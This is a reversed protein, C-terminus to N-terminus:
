PAIGFVSRGIIAVFRDDRWRVVGLRSMVDVAAGGRYALYRRTGNSFILSGDPAIADIRSSTSFGSVRQVVAAPSRTWVQLAGVQDPLTFATWGGSVAFDTGPIPGPPNSPALITETTGDHLVIAYNSPGNGCCVVPRFRRYVVNVGDTRVYANVLNPTDPSLRTSTGDRYRYVFNGGFGTWFGVDGNPAIGQEVSGATTSIVTNTGSILDRRTLIAVNSFLAYSGEVFLGGNLPGLDLLNGARWEKLRMGSAFIAGLPTVFGSQTPGPTIAQMTATPVAHLALVGNDSEYLIRDGRFDIAAGAVAAIETLRSAPEVYVWRDVVTAQGRSDRATFRFTVSDGAPSTVSTTGSVQSTGTAVVQTSAFPRVVEVTLSSCGAPDDDACTAAYAIGPRAVARSGPASIVLRPARDHVVIVSRTNQAGNVDRATVFLQLPGTPLDAIPITGRWQGNSFALAIQTAGLTATVSEISYTSTVAARIVLTDAVLLGTGPQSITVHPDPVTVTIRAAGRIGEATATITVQGPALARALGSQDISVLASDSTSWKVTRGTLVTGAADRVAALLQETRGLELSTELPTVQVAAAPTRVPGVADCSLTLLLLMLGASYRSLRHSPPYNMTNGYNSSSGLRVARLM